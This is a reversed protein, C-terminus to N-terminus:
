AIIADLYDVLWQKQEDHRHFITYKLDRKTSRQKIKIVQPTISDDIKWQLAGEIWEKLITIDQNNSQQIWKYLESPLCIWRNDDKLYTRIQNTITNKKHIDVYRCVSDDQTNIYDILEKAIHWKTSVVVISKGLSILKQIPYLFDGDGTFLILCDRLSQDMAIDYWMETDVNWKNTGGKNELKKFYFYNKTLTFKKILKRTRNYQPINKPDYAGYMAIKTIQDDQNCQSIFWSVDYDRWLTYKTYHMNSYDLYIGVRHGTSCFNFM